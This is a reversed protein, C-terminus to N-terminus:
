YIKKSRLSAVQNKFWQGSDHFSKLLDESNMNKWKRALKERVDHLKKMFEPENKNM